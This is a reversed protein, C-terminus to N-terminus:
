ASISGGSGNAHGTGDGSVTFTGSTSHLVIGNAGGNANVADLLVSGSSGTFNVATGTTTTVNVQSVNLTGGSSFLGTNGGASVNLGQVRSLNPMTITNQLTPRTGGITPRAFTGAPPTIGMLADFTNTPSNTAGQGILWENTNLSIGQTYTGTYVFIRQGT